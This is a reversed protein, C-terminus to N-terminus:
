RRRAYTGMLEGRGLIHGAMARDVQDRTAGAPLDLSADLAYLRFFYRHPKGVPPCPGGYGLKGFDNKGQHGGGPLDGSAPVGASLSQTSDPLNFLVWHVWTKSPADPDDVILAWALTGDPGSGWTLPPSVDKGDCTHTEPIAAGQMFASSQIQIAMMTTEQTTAPAHAQLVAPEKRTCGACWVLTVLSAAALPLHIRMM